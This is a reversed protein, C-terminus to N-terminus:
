LGLHDLQYRGKSIIQDQDIWVDCNRTLVDVHTRSKWDAHKELVLVDIGARALLFALMMGAPGGGVICCRTQPSSATM